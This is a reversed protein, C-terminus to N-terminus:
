VTGALVVVIIVSMRTVLVAAVVAVKVSFKSPTATKLAAKMGALEVADNLMLCTKVVVLTIAPEAEAVM